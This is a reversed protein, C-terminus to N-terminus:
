NIEKGAKKSEALQLVSSSSAQKSGKIRREGEKRGPRSYYLVAWDKNEGKERKENESESEREENRDTEGRRKRLRTTRERNEM